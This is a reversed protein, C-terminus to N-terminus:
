KKIEGKNKFHKDIGFNEIPMKEFRSMGLAMKQMRAMSQYTTIRSGPLFSRKHVSVLSKIWPHSNDLSDRPVGFYDYYGNIVMASIYSQPMYFIVRQIDCVEEPLENIFHHILVLDAAFRRQIETTRYLVNVKTWKEKRDKRSLVIGILCSGNNVKKQKFYYTYSLGSMNKIKERFLLLSDYDVYTRLLQNWKGKTYGFNSLDLTCDWTKTALVLNDIYGLIGSWYDLINPNELVEKTLNLFLEDFDKYKRVLM